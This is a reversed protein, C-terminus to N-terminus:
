EEEGEIECLHFFDERGIIMPYRMNSRDVGSVILEQYEENLHFSACYLERTSVGNASRVRQRAKTSKFELAEILGIDLSSRDAGTDIKAEITVLWNHHTWLTIPMVGDEIYDILRKRMNKM